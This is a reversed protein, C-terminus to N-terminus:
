IGRIVGIGGICPAKGGKDLIGVAEILDVGDFCGQDIEISLFDGDDGQVVHIVSVPRPCKGAVVKVQAAIEVVGIKILKNGAVLRASTVSHLSKGSGRASHDELGERCVRVMM